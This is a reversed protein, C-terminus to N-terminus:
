AYRRKPVLGSLIEKEDMKKAGGEAVWEPWSIVVNTGESSITIPYHNKAVAFKDFAIKDEKKIDEPLDEPKKIGIEKELQMAFLSATEENRFDFKVPKTGVNNLGQDIVFQAKKIFDDKYEKLDALYKSDLTGKVTVTMTAKVGDEKAEDMLDAIKNLDGKTQEFKFSYEDAKYMEDKSSVSFYPKSYADASIYPPPNKVLEAIERIKDSDSFKEKKYSLVKKAEKELNAVANDYANGLRKKIEEPKLEKKLVPLPIDKEQVESATKTVLAGM